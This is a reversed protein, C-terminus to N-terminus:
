RPSKAHCAFDQYRRPEPAKGAALRGAFPRLPTSIMVKVAM